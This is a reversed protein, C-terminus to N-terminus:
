KQRRSPVPPLPPPPPPPAVDILTDVAEDAPKAADMLGDSPPAPVAVAQGPFAEVTIDSAPETSTTPVDTAIGRKGAVNRQALTGLACIAVLLLWMVGIKWRRPVAGNFRFWVPKALSALLGICSALGVAAFLLGTDTM